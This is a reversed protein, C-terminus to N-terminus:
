VKGKKFTMQVFSETPGSNSPVISIGMAGSHPGKHFDMFEEENSLYATKGTYMDLALLAEFKGRTLYDVYNAGAYQLAIEIDNDLSQFAKAIKEVAVPIFLEKYFEKTIDYRRKDGVPLDQNLYKVFNTIGLTKNNADEIHSAVTPIIEKYRLLIDRAKLQAMGGMGLRGGGSSTESKSAKVEVLEGDIVVDGTTDSLQVRDSLMALAFEGPGKKNSGVGYPLLTKFVTYGVDSKFINSLANIPKKLADVDYASGTKELDDLFDKIKDYSSEIQYIVQTLVKTAAEKNMATEDAIPKVVLKGIVTQIHDANLIRWIQDILERDKEEEIDLKKVIDQIKTKEAELDEYEKLSEQKKVKMGPLELQTPEPKPLPLEQQNYPRDIVTLGFRNPIKLNGQTTIIQAPDNGYPPMIGIIKAKGLNTGIKIENGKSDIIILDRKPEPTGTDIGGSKYENLKSENTNIFKRQTDAMQRKIFGRLIPRLCVDDGGEARRDRFARLMKPDPVAFFADMQKKLDNAPMKDSLLHNLMRIKSNDPVSEGVLQGRYPHPSKNGENPIIKKPKKSNAKVQKAKKYAEDIKKTEIKSLVDLQKELPLSDFKEFINPMSSNIASENNIRQLRMRGLALADQFVLPRGGGEKNSQISQLVADKFTSDNDSNNLFGVLSNSQGRELYNYIGQAMINNFITYDARAVEYTTDEQESPPSNTDTVGNRSYIDSVDDGDSGDGDKRFYNGGSVNYNDRIYKEAERVAAAWRKLGIVNQGDEDTEKPRWEHNGDYRNYVVRLLEVGQDNVGREIGLHDALNSWDTKSSIGNSSGGDLPDIGAAIALRDLPKGLDDPDINVDGDLVKDLVDELAVKFSGYRDQKMVKAVIDKMKAPYQEWDFADFRKQEADDEINSWSSASSRNLPEGSTPNQTEEDPFLDEQGPAGARSDGKRTIEIGLEQLKEYLDSDGKIFSDSFVLDSWSYGYLRTFRNLIVKYGKKRWTHYYNKNKEFTDILELGNTADEADAWHSAPIVYVKTSNVNKNFHDLHNDLYAARDEYNEDTITDYFDKDIYMWSYEPINLKAKANDRINKEFDRNRRDLTNKAQIEQKLNVFGEKQFIKDFASLFKKIGAFREKVLEKKWFAQIPGEKEKWYFFDGIHISGLVYDDIVAPFNYTGEDTGIESDAKVLRDMKDNWRDPDPEACLWQKSDSGRADKWLEQQPKLTELLEIGLKSLQKAITVYKEKDEVELDRLHDLRVRLRQTLANEFVQSYPDDSKINIHHDPSTPHKYGQYPELFNLLEQASDKSTIANSQLLKTNTNWGNGRMKAVFGNLAREHSLERLINEIEIKQSGPNLQVLLDALKDMKGNDKSDDSQYFQWMKSAIKDLDIPSLFEPKNIIDQKFLTKIGVTLRAIKEKDTGDFGYDSMSALTLKEIADTNLQLEKAFKRFAGINKASVTARNNGDAIDRALLTIASGFRDQAKKLEGAARKSPAMSNPVMYGQVTEEEIEVKSGTGKEYDKIEQKWEKDAVPSSLKEYNQLNEVSSGLLKIVDFYDKKGVIAKAADIVEHNVVELDKLKKPDIEQSKRLLRFVANVYDEKFSDEEYGARMMTAYRVCAKVVKEYMTNYDSGGAIRFEVLNNGSTGDKEGKFHISNFKGDSIGKSLIAEFDKFSKADGRKMGEAYKLVNRYQSKTYSNKLRGFEALLYEDGLLLAMKLKNQETQKGQWSMTIHLGTTNNTGFNTESWNFLSRMEELMSRPSDFVPSILEAGTGEDPEISSDNEVSWGTTTNTSDYDGVEPYNTFKSNDRIWTYLEDAVGEVDGDNDLEYSFGYDDLFSSMYSYNDYVWEEMSYDQEALEKADNDLDSDERVTDDLWALYEDEYREEVFERAWNMYDWGDEERNEYEKPDQEEFENKYVEIAESSPGVSSDIFDTLLDEDEKYEQVKEDVLDQLYEDQGKQYLWDQYDEYANDPLDGFTYEIDSISMEDVSNRSSGSEVSYFFTEAEFGCKVPADLASTAIEKRNFNIEFLEAPQEKLRRRALKKLKSGIKKIQQKKNKRKALKSLKSENKKKDSDIDVQTNPDIVQLKDDTQVVVSDKAPLKGVKSVVTGLPEGNLDKIKTDNDVDGIDVTAFEEGSDKKSAGMTQDGSPTPKGSSRFSYEKLFHELTKVDTFKM